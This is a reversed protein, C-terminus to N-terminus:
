ASIPSMCAARQLPPLARDAQKLLTVVPSARTGVLPLRKRSGPVRMPSAIPIREVGEQDALSSYELNQASFLEPALRSTETKVVEAACWSGLPVM